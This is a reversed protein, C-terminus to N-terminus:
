RILGSKNSSAFMANHIRRPNKRNFHIRPGAPKSDSGNGEVGVRREGCLLLLVKEVEPFEDDGLLEPVLTQDM